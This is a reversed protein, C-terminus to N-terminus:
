FDLNDTIRTHDIKFDDLYQKIRHTAITLDYNNLNLNLLDIYWPTKVDSLVYTRVIERAIPLTTEKSM